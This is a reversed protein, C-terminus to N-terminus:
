DGSNIIADFEEETIFQPDYDLGLLDLQFVFARLHSKSGELLNEYVNKIDRRTTEKLLEQLDFIDMDEITAGVLLADLLSASGDEVLSDYLEQINGDTFEGESVLAPDELNYRDILTVVADMHRQESESINSFIQKHWMEEMALYVDRALKEEERMQLLGSEEDSSLTPFAAPSAATSVGNWSLVILFAICLISKILNM